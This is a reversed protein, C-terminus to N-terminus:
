FSVKASFTVERPNSPTVKPNGFGSYAANFGADDLYPDISEYNAHNFLNSFNARVLANMKTNLKFNKTVTLDATNTWFDRADNRAVNGWPSNFAKQAYTSNMIYRVDSASVTKVTSDATKNANNWSILTTPAASCSAPNSVGDNTYYACVDGAYAGVQTVPAKRSGLFPRLNDPGAGYAGNFSYDSVGSDSGYYDFGYQIPTYPQGSAIFYTGSVGWGGLLHGELGHQEKFFPVQEVFNLTLNQPFDLGSLGHEASKYNLPDQAIASTVGAGGGSYVESVNDTTKSWTYAASFTLQHFLDNARLEAQLAHYDSYGTNTRQRIIASTGDERGNVASVTVGSPIANPFAAQLGALYPNANITQFLDGGHNGVYRVEAVLNHSIERQIGLSWASVYDARFNKSENIQTYDRPDAIGKTLYSSLASRVNPGTPNAPLVGDVDSASTLTQSLVQPASDATNLYINYFPPDYSLRYGGRLVTKHTTGLFDPTWAFGVSPGFMHNDAPLKAATTVSLPLNPDWLPDSSEQSETDLKNFLNGPQGYTSWTLGLNVTLNPKIQWDDGAYLFTDYERFDLTTNGDVINIESPTSALYSSWNSFEFEGNVLPLFTNPSRQYTWNVGAKLHHKGLQYNFNDQLQWTNVIRGQPLNDAPGYGLSAAGATNSITVYTVGQTINATTPDSNNSSGGFQTNERGFNVSFENVINQTIARTWGLKVAQSLSPENYFWGGAGNDGLDFWNSRSLIYRAVITDKGNSYDARPLWNFIHQREPVSRQVYSYEIPCSTGSITSEIPTGYETPNGTTFSYPGYTQLAALSNANVAGCAAAETLGTQTPSIGSSTYVASEHFQEQDFGNFFFLRDKVIPFGITFGGFETNSRPLDTLGEYSKQYPTLTELDNNTWNGYISGHINNTGSKTVVNIVSGGNRGYEPGFNNTIIQYESAFEADSVGLAPGTVSNDNNNQGDIQQDNNRGRSGNSAVAAGNTDGYDLDRSANVGPVLLALNDLGQNENVNAFSAITEASFDNTIQAQTTEILPTTSGSVQVTSEASVGLTVSGLGTDQSTTVVVNDLKKNGFGASAIEIRYTGPPLLNFRFGGTSKDETAQYVVGTQTNTAKVAADGIAAGSGDIVTGSISGKTVQAFTALPTFALLLLMLLRNLTVVAKM